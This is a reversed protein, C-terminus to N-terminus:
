QIVGILLSLKTQGALQLQLIYQGCRKQQILGRWHTDQFSVFNDSPLAGIKSSKRIQFYGKMTMVELPDIMAMLNCYKFGNLLICVFSSLNM